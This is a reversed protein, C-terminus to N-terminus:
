NNKIIDEYTEPLDKKFRRNWIPSTNLYNDFKVENIRMDLANERSYMRVFLPYDNLNFAEEIAKHDVIGQPYFDCDTIRVSSDFIKGGLHQIRFAFDHLNMNQYEYRCDYGGMEIFYERNILHHIALRYDVPISPLRLTPHHWARWYDDPMEAGKYELGETYRLNIVDKKTCKQEYESIALDLSDEIFIADDVSHIILKGTANKVAIQACRSPSGYDKIHRVNPLRSLKETLEFPGCLVVEFSYKKCSTEISDYLRDWKPTRIAPMIISVTYM